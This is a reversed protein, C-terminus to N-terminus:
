KSRRSAEMRRKLRPLITDAKRAERRAADPKIDVRVLSENLEDRLWGSDETDLDLDALPRGRHVLGPLDAVREYLWEFVDDGIFERVVALDTELPEWLDPNRAAQAAAVEPAHKRVRALLMRYLIADDLHGLMGMADPLIDGPSMAYGVVGASMRRLSDDLEPEDVLDFIRRYDEVLSTLARAAFAVLAESAM